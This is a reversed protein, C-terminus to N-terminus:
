GNRQGPQRHEHRRQHEAVPRCLDRRQREAGGSAVNVNGTATLSGGAVVTATGAVSLTTTTMSGSGVNLYGSSNITTGGAGTVALPNGASLDLENLAYGASGLTLSLVSAPGLDPGTVTTGAPSQIYISSGAQPGNATLNLGQIQLNGSAGGSSVVTGGTINTGSWNPVNTWHSTDGTGAWIITSLGVVNWNTQPGAAPGSSTWSLFQYSNVGNFTIGDLAVPSLTVTGSPTAFNAM